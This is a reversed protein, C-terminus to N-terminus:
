FVNMNTIASILRDSVCRWRSTFLAFSRCRLDIVDVSLCWVLIMDDNVTRHM